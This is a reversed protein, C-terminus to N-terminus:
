EVRTADVSYLSNYEYIEYHASVFYEDRLEFDIHSYGQSRTRIDLRQNHPVTDTNFSLVNDFSDYESRFTLSSERTKTNSYMHLNQKEFFERSFESHKDGSEASDELYRWGPSNTFGLECNGYIDSVVSSADDISLGVCGLFSIPFGDQMHHSMFMDYARSNIHFLKNWKLPVNMSILCTSFSESIRGNYVFDDEFQSDSSTEPLVEGKFSLWFDSDDSRTYKIEYTIKGSGDNKNKIDRNIVDFVDSFGFHKEFSAASRNSAIGLLLELEAASDFQKGNLIFSGNTIVNSSTTEDNKNLLFAEVGTFDVLNNTSVDKNLVIPTNINKFPTPMGVLHRQIVTCDVIDVSDDDTVDATLLCFAPSSIGANFRQIITVDFITVNGDLDVDGVLGYEPYDSAASVPVVFVAVMIIASLFLSVVRKM